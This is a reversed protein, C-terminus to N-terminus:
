NYSRSNNCFKRNSKDTQNDFSFVGHSLLLSFFIMPMIQAVTQIKKENITIQNKDLDFYKCNRINKTLSNLLNGTNKEAFPDIEPTAAQSPELFDNLELDDELAMHVRDLNSSNTKTTLTIM